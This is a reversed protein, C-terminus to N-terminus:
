LAKQERKVIRGQWGEREAANAVATKSVGFHEAVTRYSRGPGLAFYYEFAEPPIKKQM